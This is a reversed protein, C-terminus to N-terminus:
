LWHSKRFRVYLTLCIGVTAAVVLPYGFAWRLEPMVDFNMGYIGAVMTPVAIIAAWAALKRTDENQSVSILSLHAELATGLLDRVSDIMENIRLCHDYVDRFYPRSAAPIQEDEFRSLRLSMEIVPSVVRKLALLDRRLRYIQTTTERSFSESFIHNELHQLEEELAAVIPFYQDVIFDMVTYCVFAPGQKLLKPTSEARTRVGAYSTASGHRVTVVFNRGLFVHTEGYEVACRDPISPRGLQATRLVIFLSNDYRELKPRQHATLADEIALDHLGFENQVKRLLPEDPECLGIWVFTGPQKLVESIDDLVVDGSRKGAAYAVSAIVADTALATSTPEM